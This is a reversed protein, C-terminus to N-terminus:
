DSISSIFVVSPLASNDLLQWVGSKEIGDHISCIKLPVIKPQNNWQKVSLWVAQSTLIMVGKDLGPISLCDFTPHYIIASTHDFVYRLCILSMALAYRPCTQPMGQAYRPYIKPMNQTYRQCIKPMDQVFRPYIKPIGQAYRPWIKPLNHVFQQCIQTM